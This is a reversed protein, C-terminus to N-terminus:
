DKVDTWSDEWEKLRWYLQPGKAYHFKLLWYLKPLKFIGSTQMAKRLHSPFPLPTFLQDRERLILWVETKLQYTKHIWNVKVIMNLWITVWSMQVASEKFWAPKAPGRPAWPCQVSGQFSPHDAAKHGHDPMFCLINSARLWPLTSVM